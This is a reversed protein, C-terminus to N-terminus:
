VLKYRLQVVAEGLTTMDLLRAEAFRGDALSMNLGEGTLHPFRRGILPRRATRAGAPAPM